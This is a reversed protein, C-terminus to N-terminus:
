EKYVFIDAFVTKLKRNSFGQIGNVYIIKNLISSDEFNKLGVELELKNFTSVLEENYSGVSLVRITDQRQLTIGIAESAMLKNYSISKIPSYKIIIFSKINNCYEANKMNFPQIDNKEEKTSKCSIISSFIIISIFILIYKM